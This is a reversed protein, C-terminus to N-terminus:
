IEDVKMPFMYTYSGESDRQATDGTAFYGFDCGEDM